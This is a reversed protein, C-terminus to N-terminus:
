LSPSRNESCAPLLACLSCADKPAATKQDNDFYCYVILSKRRWEAFRKAWQQLTKKPYRDKYRGTPGHGRVYVYDATVEWPSPADHHDSLCLAIGEDRLLSFVKPDYWGPDRFEFAYQRKKNLLKVFSALRNRDAKFQPPLQFLVPGVKPELVKLRTELLELSNRCKDSLRKWHTIFKSAKWAFLFHEPTQDRWAKVADLSPTRYFSGNVETTTFQDSYWQLWGAIPVNAPYFPGRWGKYTWGSTGIRVEPNLRLKTSERM